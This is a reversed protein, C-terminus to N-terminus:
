TVRCMRGACSRLQSTLRQGQGEADVPEPDNCGVSLFVPRLLASGNSPCALPPPAIHRQFPLGAAAPRHATPLALWRRRRPM